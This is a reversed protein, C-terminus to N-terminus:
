QPNWDPLIAQARAKAIEAADALGTDLAPPEYNHTDPLINVETEVPYGAPGEFPETGLVEMDDTWGMMGFKLNQVDYGLTRLVIAAAQGTHGTYCYVVIPKDTPLKALNADEAITRWPINYAGPIHGKAYAEPARVSVVIPDNSDDGDTLNEFLAEASIM